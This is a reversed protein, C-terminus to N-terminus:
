GHTGVLREEFYESLQGRLFQRARLLRIKVNEETINLIESAERTSLGEIDRLIFVTKYKEKLTGIAEDIKARTEENSVDITPDQSWDVLNNLETQEPDFDNDKFNAKRIKKKRLLMLASNTAIRYVWTFFSSRGDFMHLKAVVTLFTEQLIDEAEEKNRLIRLALNYVRKSYRNVLVSMAHKDGQKALEIIENEEM